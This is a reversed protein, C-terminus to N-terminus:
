LFLIQSTRPHASLDKVRSRLFYAVAVLSPIKKVYEERLEICKKAWQQLKAVWYFYLSCFYAVAVVSPIKKVYEGRLEICKKAWQQLKQLVIFFIPINDEM